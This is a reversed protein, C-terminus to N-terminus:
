GRVEALRALWRRVSLAVRRGRHRGPREPESRPRGLTLTEGSEGRLMYDLEDPPIRGRAAMMAAYAIQRTFDATEQVVRKPPKGDAFEGESWKAVDTLADAIAEFGTSV